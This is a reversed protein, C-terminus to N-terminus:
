ERRRPRIAGGGAAATRTEGALAGRFFDVLRREYEAPYLLLAQTHGAGQVQWPDISGGNARVGAALEALYGPSLREDDAGMTLYIARGHLKSTAQLPSRATIDDGTLVRGVVIAGVDLFAPYGNRRLEDRIAGRIDAFSSDSWVAAVEPEEGIAILVTAAGGSFGLFGIREAPVGERRLWDFAGLADLYENNGGSFRGDSVSSDGHNRMDILLAAIGHRHLMGAALLNPGNRRCGNLGHVLVVAPASPNAVPEWWAAITVNADGRAPFSVTQPAPMRYPLTDIGAITFTTPDQIDADPCNARARSLRDYVLGSAAMYAGVVTPAIRAILTLIRRWQPANWGYM